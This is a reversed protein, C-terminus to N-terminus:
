KLSQILHGWDLPLSSVYSGKVNLSSHTPEDATKRSDNLRRQRKKVIIIMMAKRLRQEMIMLSPSKKKLYKITTPSIIPKRHTSLWVKM